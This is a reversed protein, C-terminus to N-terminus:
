PARRGRARHAGRRDDRRVQRARTRMPCPPSCPPSLARSEAATCYTAAACASAALRPRQFRSQCRSHAAAAANPSPPPHDVYKSRLDDLEDTKDGAMRRAERLQRLYDLAAARAEELAVKLEKAKM